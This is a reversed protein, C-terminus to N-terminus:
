PKVKKLFNFGGFIAAAGFIIMLVSLILYVGNSHGYYMTVAPTIIIRVYGILLLGAGISFCLIGIVPSKWFKERLFKDKGKIALTLAAVSMVFLVIMMILDIVVPVWGTFFLMPTGWSFLIPITWIVLFINLLAGTLALGWCRGKIACIGGVISAIGIAARSASISGLTSTIQWGSIDNTLSSSLALVIGGLAFITGTIINLIGLIRLNNEDKKAFLPKEQNVVLV